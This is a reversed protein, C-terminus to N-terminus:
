KTFYEQECKPMCMYGGQVINLGYSAAADLQPKYEVNKVIIGINRSNALYVTTKVLEEDFSDGSNTIFSSSVKIMDIYSFKLTNLPLYENGFSDICILIGLKKLKGLTSSTENYALLHASEPIEVMFSSPSLESEDLANQVVTSVSGGQLDHVTLNVSVKVDNGHIQQMKKCFKCAQPIVWFDIATDLGVKEMLRMFVRPSVYGSNESKWRLLTEYHHIADDGEFVPQYTLEFNKMGDAICRRLEQELNYVDGSSKRFEHNFFAFSNRGYENARYLSLTVARYLDECQNVSEDFLAVGIAVEAYQQVNDIVFPKEFRDLIKQAAQQAEDPRCDNLIILMISGSYRYVYQGGVDESELYQAIMRLLRDTYGQGFVENLSRTNVIHVAMVIGKNKEDLINRMDIDLKARNKIGLMNDYFALRFLQDNKEKIKRDMECRHMINSVSQSISRVIRKDEYSWKRNREYSEYFLLAKEGGYGCIESVAFVGLSLEKIQAESGRSFYNETGGLIECIYNYNNRIYSDSFDNNMTKSKWSSVVYPNETGIDSCYVSVRELKLYNGVTELVRDLAVEAQTEEMVVSHISNLLMQQEVNTGLQRNVSKSNQKENYLLIFSDTMRSLSECMAPLFNELSNFASEDNSGICWVGGDKHNFRITESKFFKYKVPSFDDANGATSAVLTGKEDFIASDISGSCSFPNQIRKLYDQGYIEELTAGNKNLESIKKSQRKEFDNIVNDNPICDMYEYVDLLVGDFTMDEDSKECCLYAWHLEKEFEMRFHTNLRRKTGATFDNFTNMLSPIDNIYVFESFLFSREPEEEDYNGKVNLVFGGNTDIQVPICNYKKLLGSLNTM